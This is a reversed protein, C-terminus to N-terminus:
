YYRFDIFTASELRLEKVFGNVKEAYLTLLRDTFTNTCDIL